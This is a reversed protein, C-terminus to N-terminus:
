FITVSGHDHAPHRPVFEAAVADGLLLYRYERPVTDTDPWTLRVDNGSFSGDAESTLTGAAGPTFMKITKSESHHRHTVSATNADDQGVGEWAEHTGDMAGMAFMGLDADSNDLGAITPLANHFFIAGRPTAGVALDQTVPPAATPVTGSGIVSTFTGRLALYGYDTAIGDVSKNIQFGDTPWSARASLTAATFLATDSILNGIFEARQVAAVEMNPRADEDFFGSVGQNSDDKGVGFMLRVHGVGGSAGHIVLILDPKGFGSTVTIDQTGTAGTTSFSGVLADTIDSGGLALYNCKLSATTPLDVWNIVFQADGLSTLDAEFDDTPTANSFGRLVSGTGGNNASDSTGVGDVSIVANHYQQAVAGRYSGLGQSFRLDAGTDAEATQYSMWLYIAKVTGFAADALSITQNGTAGPSTFTGVEVKLAV